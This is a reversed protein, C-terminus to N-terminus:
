ASALYKLRVGDLLAQENFEFDAMQKVLKPMREPAFETYIAELECRISAKRASYFNDLADQVYAFLAKFDSQKALARDVRETRQQQDQFLPSSPEGLLQQQQKELLKMAAYIEFLLQIPTEGASNPDQLSAGARILVLASLPDCSRLAILLLTDGAEVQELLAM